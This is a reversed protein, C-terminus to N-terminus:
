RAGTDSVIKDTEGAIKDIKGLERTEITPAESARRNNTIVECLSTKNDASPEPNYITQFYPRM